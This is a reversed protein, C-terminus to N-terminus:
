ENTFTMWKSLKTFPNYLATFSKQGMGKGGLVIWFDLVCKKLPGKLFRFQLYRGYILGIYTSMGVFYPSIHYWRTEMKPDQLDGMSKEYRSSLTFYAGTNRATSDEKLGM